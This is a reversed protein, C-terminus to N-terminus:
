RSGFADLVRERYLEQGAVDLGRYGLVLQRLERARRRGRRAHALRLNDFVLTQGPALRVTTEASAVDLGHGILFREEAAPDSFETGCLFGPTEPVSPLVPERGAAAEVVRGLIGEAYSRAADWAGHSEGYAAFRRHLEARDAWARRGLLGRLDLLRTVASTPGAGHPVHLVTFRALERSGHPVLPLGFDFHFAQFARAASGDVPIRFDGVCEVPPMGRWGEAATVEACVGRARAEAASSTPATALLAHGQEALTTAASDM